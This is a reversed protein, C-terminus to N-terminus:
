SEPAVSWESVQMDKPNYDYRAKKKVLLIEEFKVCSCERVKQTGKSSGVSCVKSYKM